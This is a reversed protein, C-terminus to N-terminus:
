IKLRMRQTSLPNFSKQWNGQPNAFLDDEGHLPRPQRANNLYKTPKQKNNNIAGCMYKHRKNEQPQHTGMMKGRKKELVSKYVYSMPCREDEIKTQWWSWDLHFFLCVRSKSTSSLLLTTCIRTDTGPRMLFFIHEISSPHPQLSWAWSVVNKSKCKAM